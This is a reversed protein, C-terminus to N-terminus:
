QRLRAVPVPALDPDLPDQETARPQNHTSLFRIRMSLWPKDDKNIEEATTPKPKPREVPKAAVAPPNERTVVVNDVKEEVGEAPDIQDRTTM